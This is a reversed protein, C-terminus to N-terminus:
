KRVVFTLIHMFKRIEPLDKYVKSLSEPILFTDLVDQMAGSKIAEPINDTDYIKQKLAPKANFERYNTKDFDNMCSAVLIESSPYLIVPLILPLQLYDYGQEVMKNYFEEIALWMIGNISYAWKEFYNQKLGLIKEADGNLILVDKNTLIFEREKSFRNYAALLISGIERRFDVAFNGFQDFNELHAKRFYNSLADTITLPNEFQFFDDDKLEILHHHKFVSTVFKKLVLFDSYGDRIIAVQPNM